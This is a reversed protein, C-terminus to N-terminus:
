DNIGKQRRQQQRAGPIDDGCDIELYSKVQLRNRQMSSICLVIWLHMDQMSRDIKLVIVSCVLHERRKEKQLTKGGDDHSDSLGFRSREDKGTPFHDHRTCLAFVVRSQGAALVSSDDLLQAKISSEALELNLVNNSRSNVTSLPSIQTELALVAKTQDAAIDAEGNSQFTKSVTV